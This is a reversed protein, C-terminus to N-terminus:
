DDAAACGARLTPHPPTSRLLPVAFADACAACVAETVDDSGLGWPDSPDSPPGLAAEVDAAAQTERDTLPPAARQRPDPPM